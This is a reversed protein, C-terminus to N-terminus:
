RVVATFVEVQLAVIVTIWGGNAAQSVGTVHICPFEGDVFVRVFTVRVVLHEGAHTFHVAGDLPGHPSPQHRIRNLKQDINLSPIKSPM